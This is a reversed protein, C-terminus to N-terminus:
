RDCMVCMVCQTVCTVPKTADALKASFLAQRQCQVDKILQFKNLFSSVARRDIRNSLKAFTFPKFYKWVKLTGGGRSARSILLFMLSWSSEVSLCLVM